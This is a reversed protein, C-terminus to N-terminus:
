LPVEADVVSGMHVRQPPHVERPDGDLGRADSGGGLDVVRQRLERILEQDADRGRDTEVLRRAADRVLFAGRGPTQDALAYLARVISETNTWSWAPLTM